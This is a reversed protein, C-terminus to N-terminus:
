QPGFQNKINRQDSDAVSGIYLSHTTPNTPDMASIYGDSGYDFTNNGNSNVDKVWEFVNGAVDWIVNGNSLTHTRKQKDWTDGDCASGTGYCAENNNDSAALTRDPNADAHGHSLGGSAVEGGSWNIAHLEINRALTQWQKNTILDYGGDDGMAQCAAEAEDRNIAVWPRHDAMAAVQYDDPDLAANNGSCGETACGRAANEDTGDGGDKKVAKAEYKMVCFEKEGYTM